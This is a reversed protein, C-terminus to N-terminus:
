VTQCVGFPDIKLVQELMNNWDKLLPKEREIDISTLAVLKEHMVNGSEDNDLGSIIRGGKESFKEIVAVILAWAAPSPEGGISIYRTSACKRLIFNSMADIGSEAVFLCDDQKLRNSMWISKIGGKTFGKFNFNRKEAGCVGEKDVHPFVANSYQDTLVCGLFRKSELASRDIGRSKLYQNDKSINMRNIAQIVGARDRVVPVLQIKKVEHAVEFSGNLYEAQIKKVAEVFSLGPCRNMIFDVVSGKDSHCHVNFYVWHDDGDKKIIISESENSMNASNQSTKEKNIKFGFLAAVGMLNAEKKIRDLDFSKMLEDGWICLQLRNEKM